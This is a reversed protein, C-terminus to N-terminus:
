DAQNHPLGKQEIQFVHSYCFSFQKSARYAFPQKEYNVHEM